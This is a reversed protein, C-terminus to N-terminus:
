GAGPRVSQSPSRPRRATEAPDFAYRMPGNRWGGERFIFALTLRGGGGGVMAYQIDIDLDLDGGHPIVFGVDGVWVHLTDTPVIVQDSIPATPAKLVVQHGHASLRAAVQVRYAPTRGVNTVPLWL